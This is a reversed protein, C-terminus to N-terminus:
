PEAPDLELTFSAPLSRAFRGLDRDLRISPDNPSVLGGTHYPRNAYQRLGERFAERAQDRRETARVQREILEDSIQDSVSKETVEPTPEPLGALDRRADRLKIRSM